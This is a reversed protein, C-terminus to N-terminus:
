AKMLRNLKNRLPEAQQLAQEDQLVEGPQNGSGIVYGEFSASVFDFIYQFQQILPLGKIKANDGGVTIVFMKKKSMEEKFNLQQDRLSQSWRDVFNKMPGSMGYWYLPTAFIIINAELVQKIIQDYDDDIPQFGESDHRKDEIPLITHDKLHITTYKLGELIHNTLQETNGNPRTSGNLVVVKM